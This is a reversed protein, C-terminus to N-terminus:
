KLLVMKKTEILEESELRYLYIGSAVTQGSADRGNWSVDHEGADYDQDALTRVIQGLINYVTLSVHGRKAISFRITTAPNFPNPYNQGLSYTLPLQTDDDTDTPNLMKVPYCLMGSYRTPMLESEYLGWGTMSGFVGTDVCITKVEDIGVGGPIFTLAIMDEALDASLGAVDVSTASGSFIISDEDIGDMNTEAVLLGGTADWTDTHPIMRSDLLTVAQTTAGLGGTQPEYTWSAGDPSSIVFGLQIQSLIRPNEIAIRLQYPRNTGDVFMTDGDRMTHDNAVDFLSIAASNFVGRILGDNVLPIYVYDAEIDLAFPNEIAKPTMPGRLRKDFAFGGTPGVQAKLFDTYDGPLWLTDIDLEHHSIYLTDVSFYATFYDHHGFDLFTSDFLIFGVYLQSSDNVIDAGLYDGSARVPIHIRVSDCKVWPLGWSFGTGAATLASDNWITTRLSFGDVRGDWMINEVILTDAEGPDDADKVANFVTIIVLQSDAEVDDEAIFTFSFDRQSGVDATDVLSFDAYFEFYGTSDGYDVFSYFDPDLSDEPASVVSLRPEPGVSDVDSVIVDFRVFSGETITKDSITNLVPPFNSQFVEVSITTTDLSFSGPIAGDTSDSVEILFDYMGGQTLDPAFTLTGTTDDDQTFTLNPATSLLTLLLAQGTLRDPDSATVTYELFEGEKVTLSVNEPIFYPPQNGADLVTIPFDISDLYVYDTIYFRVIYLGEQLYGPIFWFYGTNNGNDGFERNGDPLNAASLVCTVGNPDNATLRIHLSDGETVSAAAIAQGLTDRIFLTPPDNPGIVRLLYDKTVTALSDDTAQFTITYTSDYQTEDPTWSFLGSNDGNDTFGAGTPMNLASLAVIGGEYDTAYVMKEWPMREVVTDAVDPISDIVPLQNGADAIDIHVIFTDRLNLSDEDDLAIFAIDYAGAQSFTPIWSFQFEGDTATPSLFANVPADDGLRALPYHHPSGFPNNDPDTATVSFVLEEDEIGSQDAIPDWVPPVKTDLIEFYFFFESSDAGDSARALIGSSGQEYYLPTIDFTAIGNGSDVFLASIPYAVDIATTVETLTDRIYLSLTIPDSEADSTSILWNTTEGEYITITDIQNIPSGDIIFSDFTPANQAAAVTCLSVIVITLLLKSM